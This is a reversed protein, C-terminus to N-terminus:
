EDGMKDEEEANLANDLDINYLSVIRLRAADEETAGFIDRLDVTAAAEAGMLDEVETLYQLKSFLSRATAKREIGAKTMGETELMVNGFQKYIREAREKLAEAVDLDALGAAAKLAILDDIADKDFSRDRLVFWLFKRFIEKSSFGTKFKLGNLVSPTLASRKAPLYESVGEVVLKNKNVNRGRKAEPSIAKSITRFIAIVFTIGLFGSVGYLAVTIAPYADMYSQILLLPTSSPPPSEAISQEVVVPEVISAAETEDGVTAELVNENDDDDDEGRHVGEQGAKAARGLLLLRPVNPSLHM